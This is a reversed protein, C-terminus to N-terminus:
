GNAQARLSRGDAFRARISIERLRPLHMQTFPRPPRCEKSCDALGERWAITPDFTFLSDFVGPPGVHVRRWQLLPGRQHLYIHKHSWSYPTYDYM